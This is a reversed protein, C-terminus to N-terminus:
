LVTLGVRLITAFSAVHPGPLARTCWAIRYSGSSPKWTKIIWLVWAYQFNHVRDALTVEVAQGTTRLHSERTSGPPLLLSTLGWMVCSVVAQYEEIFVWTYQQPLQATVICLLPLLVVALWNALWRFATTHFKRISTHYHYLEYYRNHLCMTTRAWPGQHMTCQLTVTSSYRRHPITVLNYLCVFRLHFTLEKRHCILVRHEHSGDRCLHQRWRPLNLARYWLM